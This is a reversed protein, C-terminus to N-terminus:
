SQKKFRCLVLAIMGLSFLTLISPEPVQTSDDAPDRAYVNLHSVGKNGFDATNLTGGLKYPTNFNLFPSNEISFIDKFNFDYVAFGGDSNDSGAKVTFALHDFTAPGLLAQVQDIIGLKTTLEWNMSNCDSLDGSVCELSLTLLESIDLTLSGGPVPGANSYSIGNQADFHALHIWGPDDHIGDPDLAQLDAETIFEMGDLIDQGNLLGDGLQGINPSPSNLGGADDNEGYLGVCSTANYSQSLLEGSPPLGDTLKISDLTANEVSCTAPNPIFGANAVNTLYSVSFILSVVASNIFKFKM